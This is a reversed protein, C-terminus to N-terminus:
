AQVAALKGVTGEGTRLVVDTSSFAHRYSKLPNKSKEVM